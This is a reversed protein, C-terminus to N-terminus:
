EIHEKYFQLNIANKMWPKKNIIVSSHLQCSDFVLISGVTQEFVNEESFGIFNNRTVQPYKEITWDNPELDPDTPNGNIDILGNYERLIEYCSSEDPSMYDRDFIVSYGIRRQHMFATHAQANKTLFLPIIISKYPILNESIDNEDETVLDTHIDHPKSSIFYNGTHMKSFDGLLEKFKNYMFELDYILANPNVLPQINSASPQFKVKTANQFQYLRIQDVEEETFFNDIKQAVSFRKIIDTRYKECCDIYKM